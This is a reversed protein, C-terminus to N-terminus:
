LYQEEGNVSCHLLLGATSMFWGKIEIENTQHIKRHCNSCVVVCNDPTYKGGDKGEHIRHVDLVSQNNEGCFKCCRQIRKFKKKNM